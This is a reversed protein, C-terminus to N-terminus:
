EVTFGAKTIAEKVQALEFTGNITVLLDELTAETNKPVHIATGSYGRVKDNDHDANVSTVGDIKGVVNNISGSCGECSMGTVKLVVESMTSQSSHFLSVIQPGYLDRTTLHPNM